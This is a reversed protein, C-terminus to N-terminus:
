FLAKRASSQSTTTLTAAVLRGSTVQAELPLEGIEDVDLKFISMSQFSLVIADSSLKTTQLGM